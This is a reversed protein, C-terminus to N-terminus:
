PVPKFAVNIHLVGPANSWAISKQHWEIEKCLFKPGMKRDNSKGSPLQRSSQKEPWSGM